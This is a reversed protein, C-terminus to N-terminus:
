PMHEVSEHTLTHWWWAKIEVMTVNRGGGALCALVSGPTGQHCTVFCGCKAESFFHIDHWLGPLFFCPPHGLFLSMVDVKSDPYVDAEQVYWMLKRSMGCLTLLDCYYFTVSVFHQLLLINCFHFIATTFHYMSFIKSYYFMAPDFHWLLCFSSVNPLHVTRASIDRPPKTPLHIM